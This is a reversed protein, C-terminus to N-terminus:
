TGSGGQGIDRPKVWRPMATDGIKTVVIEFEINPEKDDGPRLPELVYRTCTVGHRLGKLLRVWLESALLYQNARERTVPPADDRKSM